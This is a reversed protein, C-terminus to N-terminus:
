KGNKNNKEQNDADPLAWYWQGDKRIAKIGLEKKANRITRDGIDITHLAEVMVSSPVM